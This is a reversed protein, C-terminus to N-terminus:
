KLKGLASLIVSAAEARTASAKPKFTNDPYGAFIGNQNVRAVADKAWTSIKAQDTFNKGGAANNLKLAKDLIVAMQERTINDDPGFKTSNYGNVIGYAAATAISDKAWHNATDAFVKGAKPQLKFARVIITVFEARNITKDPKFTGDTYGSIVGTKVLKNINNGAWHGTIDTLVISNSGTDNNNADNSNDTNGAVSFSITQEQGASAGNKSTLRADVIIKYSGPELAATPKVFIYDREAFTVTPDIRSVDASVVKHNGDYLTIFNKNNNWVTNDAVNTAFEIRITPPNNTLTMNEGLADGTTSVNNNITTLCASRLLPPNQGGGSGDGALATQAGSILSTFLLLAVLFTSLLSNRKFIHM